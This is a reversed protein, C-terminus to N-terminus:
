YFSRFSNLQFACTPRVSPVLYREQGGQNSRQSSKGRDSSIMVVLFQPSRNTAQQAFGMTWDPFSRDSVNVDCILMIGKHRDDALINSFTAKLPGEQGELAQLFSGDSYVLMGTLGLPANKARISTLMNELEEPCIPRSASSTYILLRQSESM